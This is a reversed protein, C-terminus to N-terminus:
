CSIGTCFMGGGLSRIGSSWGSGVVCPGLSVRRPLRRM